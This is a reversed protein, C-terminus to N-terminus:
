WEHVRHTHEYIHISREGERQTYGLGTVETNREGRGERETGKHEREMVRRGM